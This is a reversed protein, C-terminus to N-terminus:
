MDSWYCYLSYTRQHITWHLSELGPEGALCFDTEPTALYSPECGPVDMATMALAAGGIFCVGACEVRKRLWIQRRM